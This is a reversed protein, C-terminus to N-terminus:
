ERKNDRQMYGQKTGGGPRSEKMSNQRVTGGSTIVVLHRNAVGQEAVFASILAETAADPAAGATEAFFADVVAADTAM